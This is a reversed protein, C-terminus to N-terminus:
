RKVRGLEIAVPAASRCDACRVAVGFASSPTGDETRDGCSVCHAGDAPWAGDRCVLLGRIPGAEPVQPRMVEVRWAIEAPLDTRGPSPEHEPVLPLLEQKHDRVAALLEPTVASAPVIRLRDGHREVRAGRRTLESLIAAATM